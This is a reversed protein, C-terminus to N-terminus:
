SERLITELLTIALIIANPTNSKIIIDQYGSDQYGSYYHVIETNKNLILTM